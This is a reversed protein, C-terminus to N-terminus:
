LVSIASTLWFASKWGLALRVFTAAPIGISLAVPTGALTITTARGEMGPPAMRSAYGAMLAWLLGASVGGVFRAVLVVAYSDVAGTVSNALFFGILASVLLPRRRM